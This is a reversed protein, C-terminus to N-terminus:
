GRPAEACPSRGEDAFSTPQAPLFTWDYSDRHLVLKLVGWAGGHAVESGHVREQPVPRLHAGGTGVVFVRVGRAPDPRGDANVPVFREYDHDHGSLAVSVGGEGLLRLLPRLDDEGSHEGSTFLPHHFFALKCRATSRRLDAQLWSAQPSGPAFDINSNVAVVHWAGLDFSYYGAAESRDGWFPVLSRWGSRTTVGAPGARQGWYAFYAAADDTKYEHNGPVPYTRDKFRGWTPAYCRAFDEARGSPYALDGVALITGPQHALLRATLSAGPAGCEAIDGAALVVPDADPAVPAQALVGSGRPALAALLCLAALPRLRAFRRHTASM